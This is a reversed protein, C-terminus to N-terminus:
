SYDLQREGLDMMSVLVDNTHFSGEEWGNSRDLVSKEM